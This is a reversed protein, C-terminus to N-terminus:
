AKEKQKAEWKEQRKKIWNTAVIRWADDSVQKAWYLALGYQRKKHLHFAICMPKAVLDLFADDWKDTLDYSEGNKHIQVFEEVKRDFTQFDSNSMLPITTKVDDKYSWRKPSFQDRNTEHELWVEPKWGSNTETYIHANNSIQNYVGVELGLATALYELLLSFHVANAGLMGWIIDNSRNFVTMNLSHPQDHPTGNCRPCPDKDISPINADPWFGLGECAICDGREISFCVAINCCVDRSTNIKLLDDEVNWISLVARRSYPNKKLHEIILKLQDTEEYFAGFDQPSKVDGYKLSLNHRWRFGYAGNLTEGDDSYEKFQKSYYLLPELDNRGALMWLSEYLHLFCNADRSESFLVREKPKEYTVTLPENVQIVEGNRSAEVTVPIYGTRIGDVICVFADNVNKYKLHM